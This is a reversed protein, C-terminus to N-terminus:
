LSFQLTLEEASPISVSDGDYDEELGMIYITVRDTCITSLCRCRYKARLEDESLEDVDQQVDQSIVYHYLEHTTHQSYRDLTARMEKTFVKKAFKPSNLPVNSRVCRNIVDDLHPALFENAFEQLGTSEEEPTLDDAM